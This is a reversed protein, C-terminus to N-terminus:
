PRPLFDSFSQEGMPRCDKKRLLFLRHHMIMLHQNWRGKDAPGIAKHCLRDHPISNNSTMHGVRTAHPLEKILPRPKVKSFGLIWRTFRGIINDPNLTVTDRNQKICLIVIIHCLVKDPVM